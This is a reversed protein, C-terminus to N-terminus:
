SKSRFRSFFGKSKKTNSTVGQPLAKSASIGIDGGFFKAMNAQFEAEEDRFRSIPPPLAASMESAADDDEFSVDRGSSSQGIVNSEPISSLMAKERVSLMPNDEFMSHAFDHDEQIEPLRWAPEIPSFAAKKPSLTKRPIATPSEPVNSITSSLSSNSRLRRSTETTNVADNAGQSHLSDGSRVDRTSLPELRPQPLRAQQRDRQTYDMSVKSGDPGHVKLGDSHDPELPQQKRVQKGSQSVSNNVAAQRGHQSSLSKSPHKATNLLTSSGEGARLPQNQQKVDIRSQIRESWESVSMASTPGDKVFSNTTKHIQTQAVPAIESSSSNILQVPPATVHSNPFRNNLDQATAGSDPVGSGANRRNQREYASELAQFSKLMGQPIQPLPIDTAYRSAGGAIPLQPESRGGLTYLQSARNSQKDVSNEFRNRNQKDAPLSHLTANGMSRGVAPVDSTLSPSRYRHGQASQTGRLRAESVSRAGNYRASTNLYHDRQDEPLSILGRTSYDAIVLSHSYKGPMALILVCRPQAM